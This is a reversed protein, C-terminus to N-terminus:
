FVPGIQLPAILINVCIILLNKKVMGKAFILFISARLLDEGEAKYIWQSFYNKWVSFPQCWDPNKAMIGGECFKYGAQDLMNCVKEGLRLFYKKVEPLDKEPVDEFIIANDQDTKLTQENRGESGLIMFVFPQPPPGIEQLAFAMVKKLIAESVTTIMRNINRATVNSNILSKILAPM